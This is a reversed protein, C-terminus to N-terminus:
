VDRNLLEANRARAAILMHKTQRLEDKLEKIKLTLAQKEYSLEKIIENLNREDSEVKM